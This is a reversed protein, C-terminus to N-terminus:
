WLFVHCYKYCGKHHQIEWYHDRTWILRASLCLWDLAPQSHLIFIHLFRHQPLCAATHLRLLRSTRTLFSSAKTHSDSLESTVSTVHRLTLSPWVLTCPALPSTDNHSTWSLTSPLADPNLILDLSHFVIFHNQIQADQQM